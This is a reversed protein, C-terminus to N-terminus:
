HDFRVASKVVSEGGLPLYLIRVEADNRIYLKAFQQMVARGIKWKYGSCSDFRYFKLKLGLMDALEMM